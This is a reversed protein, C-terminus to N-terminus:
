LGGDGIEKHWGAGYLREEEPRFYDRLSSIYHYCTGGTNLNWRYKLGEHKRLCTRECTKDTCGALSTVRGNLIATAPGIVKM